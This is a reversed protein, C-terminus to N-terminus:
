GSRDGLTACFSLHGMISPTRAAYVAKTYLPALGRIPRPLYSQYSRTEEFCRFEVSEFGAAELSRTLRRITNLRYETPFHYSEIHDSQKLRALFWESAGLRTATSTILGFYQHKNPTLGLLKGNPKLVRACAAIFEDSRAIHELVYVSFAVDFEDEHEAAFNEMSQQYRTDLTPNDHISKDPDIGVLYPNRKKIAVLASSRSRGAGINLVRDGPSCQQAVWQAYQKTGRRKPPPIAVVTQAIM